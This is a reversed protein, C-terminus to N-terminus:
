CANTAFSRLNIVMVTIDDINGRSLSMDVLKKCSETSNKGRLIIDVAEQENVQLIGVFYNTM